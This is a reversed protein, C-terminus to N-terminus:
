SCLTRTTTNITDILIKLYYVTIVLIHLNHNHYLNKKLLLTQCICFEKKHNNGM